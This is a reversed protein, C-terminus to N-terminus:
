GIAGQNMVSAVPAHLQNYRLGNQSIVKRLGFALKDFFSSLIAAITAPGHSPEDDGTPLLRCGVSTRVGLRM